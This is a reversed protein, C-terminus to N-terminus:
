QLLMRGDVKVDITKTAQAYDMVTQAVLADGSDVTVKTSGALMAYGDGGRTMFDNSAVKYSRAPDLPVGAIMVSRVRSGRPAAASAVIRMGAIQPFRGSPGEAFALGNELADLVARGTVSTVLTKNGFPLETLITRRTIVTGVDYTTNGRIGGGNLLAIDAGTGSCLADAFFDGIATEGSRVAESRSDLPAALTALDVDLTKALTAQYGRVTTLMAPDPAVTATDTVRFEPWWSVTRAGDKLTVAIDLDIATVYNADQSSEAFATRGDFDIHLDHNHGGLILDVVHANMIAAGAAKDAHVVAVVFDAGDKRAAGAKDRITQPTPAFLIGDSHSLSATADFAAGIMAISVGGVAFRWDDHHGPLPQNEGDRMNAALVQFRGEGMRTRYIDAGFDFEHNGPVFVDVGLQDFLTVMHAGQDLSSLLSPSLTDGAHVFILRRGAASAQAREAKIVALRPFGGRGKAGQDIEYVDNVLVFTMRAVADAPQADFAARAERAFTAAGGALLSALTQRRTFATM